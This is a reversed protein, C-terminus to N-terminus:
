SSSAPNTAVLDGFVPKGGNYSVFQKGQLHVFYSYYTKPFM